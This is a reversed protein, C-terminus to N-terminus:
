PQQKVAQIKAGINNRIWQSDWWEIPNVWTQHVLMGYHLHDGGALGTIGTKGITDGKTVMQGATVNMHSLHSYMSFLGMGHDILVTGGYIGLNESFVVKGSNAAPVASHELSALDIGMHTQEDIKKGKYLYSRHDAFGARPAAAPLRMFDGEWYIKADSQATLKALTEYNAKRLDSNVKLFIDLSSAGPAAEVQNAFEAMKWDLFDDSLAISDRKFQRSNILHPLAIRSQNGALDTGSVYVATGPGQRFDVAIMAMYINSDGFYGSLGPYFHEGISVGSTRCDESLKYIVLGAGGQAFYNARSLVDIGPPRTDIVVEHEQYAVNGKGWQRWSFDRAALRLVAKGDKIGKALPEFPIQLTEEHVSGGRFIGAPAFVKELLQIEQGDKFLGVWVKRIGSKADAVHLPLTQNAGLAPSELTLSLVPPKGEMRQFLVFILLGLLLLVPVILLVPKSTNRKANLLNFVGKM